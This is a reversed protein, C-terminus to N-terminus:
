KKSLVAKIAARREDDSLVKWAEPCDDCCFGITTGEFEVTHEVATFPRLANKQM